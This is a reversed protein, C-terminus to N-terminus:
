LQEQHYLRRVDFTRFIASVPMIMASRRGGEKFEKGLGADIM